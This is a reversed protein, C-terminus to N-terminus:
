VRYSDSNFRNPSSHNGGVLCVLLVDGDIDFDEYQESASLRFFQAEHINSEGSASLLIREQLFHNSYFAM